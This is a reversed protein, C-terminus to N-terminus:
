ASWDHEYNAKEIVAYAIRYDRGDTEVVIEGPTAEKLTGLFSRRGEILDRTRVRVRKGIFRAFHEPTKLARNIGPSSVELVYSGEVQLGEDFIENLRRSIRTLDELTPGGEKDLFIRLVKGARSGERRFEVDVIEMGEGAAVPGAMEWIRTLIPDVSMM